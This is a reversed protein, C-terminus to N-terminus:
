FSSFLRNKNMLGGNNPNAAWNTLKMLDSEWAKKRDNKIDNKDHEVKFKIYIEIYWVITQLDKEPVNEAKDALKQLNKITRTVTSSIKNKIFNGLVTKTEESLHLKKDFADVIRDIETKQSQLERTLNEWEKLSTQRGKNDFLAREEPTLEGRIRPHESLLSMVNITLKQLDRPNQYVEFLVDMIEPNNSNRTGALDVMRSLDEQKTESRSYAVFRIITLADKALNHIYDYETSSSLNDETQIKDLLKGLTERMQLNNRIAELFRGKAKRIIDTSKYVDNIFSELPYFVSRTQLTRITQPTMKKTTTLDKLQTIGQLIRYAQQLENPTLISNQDKAIFSQLNSIAVQSHEELQRLQEDYTMEPQSERLTPTSDPKTTGKNSGGLRLGVGLVGTGLRGEEGGQSTKPMDDPNKPEERFDMETIARIYDEFARRSFGEPPVSRGTGRGNRYKDPLKRAEGMVNYPFVLACLSLYLIGSYLTHIIKMFSKYPM